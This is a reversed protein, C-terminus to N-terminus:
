LIIAVDNLMSTIPSYFRTVCLACATHVTRLALRLSGCLVDNSIVAATFHADLATITM